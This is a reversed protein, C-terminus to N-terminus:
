VKQNRNAFSMDGLLIRDSSGSPRIFAGQEVNVQISYDTKNTVSMFVDSGSTVFGARILEDEYIYSTDQQTVTYEGYRDAADEPREVTDLTANYGVYRTTSCGAALAAIAAFLLLPKTLRIMSHFTTETSSLTTNCRIHVPTGVYAWRLHETITYM